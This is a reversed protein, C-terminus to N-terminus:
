HVLKEKYYEYIDNGHQDNTHKGRVYGRKEWFTLAPTNKVLVALGMHTTEPYSFLHKELLTVVESGYGKGQFEHRIILLAIWASRPYPLVATEAVGILTGTNDSIQWVVGRPLAQTEQMDTHIEALSMTSGLGSWLNFQEDGNFAPLLAEADEIGVNSLVLRKGHLEM